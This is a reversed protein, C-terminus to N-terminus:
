KPVLESGIQELGLASQVLRVIVFSCIAIALGIISNLMMSKASSIKESNGQSIIMQTGAVIFFLLAIGAIIGLLLNAANMAVKTLDTTSCKGDNKCGDTVGNFIFVRAKKPPEQPAPEEEVVVEEVEEVEEVVEEVVEQAPPLCCKHYVGGVNVCFGTICDLGTFTSTCSHDPFIRSCPSSICCRSRAKCSGQGPCESANFPYKKKIVLCTGNKTVGGVKITCNSGGFVVDPYFFITCIILITFFIKKM